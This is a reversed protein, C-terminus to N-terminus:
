ADRLMMRMAFSNLDCPHHDYYCGVAFNGAHDRLVIALAETMQIHYCSATLKLPNPRNEHQIILDVLSQATVDVSNWLCLQELAPFLQLILFLEVSHLGNLALIKLTSQNNAAYMPLLSVWPIGSIVDLRLDTLGKFNSVRALAEAEM